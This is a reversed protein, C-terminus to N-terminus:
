TSMDRDWGSQLIVFQALDNNVHGQGVWKTSNGRSGAGVAEDAVDSVPHPLAM